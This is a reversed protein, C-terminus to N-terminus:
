VVDAFFSETRRFYLVGTSLILLSVLASLFITPGPAVDIGLVAWRFGEIVGTMPNLRYVFRWQEPVLTVSYTVPSAFLWLQTLFPVVYRIDRYRVNMASLWIGTALATLMALLLLAPIVLLRWTPGIHFILMLGLMALSAFAFDVVPPLIASMPLLLRPFYVKSLLGSSVVLSNSSQTLSTAFYQWPLLAAYSFIPYPTGDSPI